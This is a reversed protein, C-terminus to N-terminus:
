TGNKERRMREVMEFYCETCFFRVRERLTVKHSTKNLENNCDYCKSGRAIRKVAYDDDAEAGNFKGKKSKFM